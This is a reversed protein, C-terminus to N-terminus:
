DEIYALNERQGNKNLFCNCRKCFLQDIKYNRLTLTRALGGFSNQKLFHKEDYTDCVYLEIFQSCKKSFTMINLCSKQKNQVLNM